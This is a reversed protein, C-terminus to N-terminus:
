QELDRGVGWEDEREALRRILPDRQAEPLANFLPFLDREEDRAHRAVEVGLVKMKADFADDEPGLEALEELLRQVIRHEERAEQIKIRQAAPVGRELAPFLMDDEIIEHAALHDALIRFLDVKKEFADDELKEFRHFLEVFHRHDMRLPDTAKRPLVRTDTM